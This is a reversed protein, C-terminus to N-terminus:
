QQGLLMVIDAAEDAPLSDPLFTERFNGSRDVLYLFYSHTEGADEVTVGYERWVTALEQPTGVLGIFGPNFKGLFAKMAEPTDRAPDTSIMVVRVDNAKEGLSQLALKLHAMTLPCETQCNTDGFYLIVVNGRLSSLTFPRGDFDTLQIEAAPAPPDIVGGRLAPRKTLYLMGALLGVVAISLASVWLAGRQM